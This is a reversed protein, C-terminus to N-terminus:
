KLYLRKISDIIIAFLVLLGRIVETIFPSIAMINLASRISSLLLVGAFVGPLSGSGGKLSVGGIVVAALVEMLMGSAMTPNAGNAKATILWGTLAALAGSLLFVRSIISKVNVGFSYAADINGGIIFLHAGFQTNELIFYFIIYIVIMIVPILSINFIKITQVLRFSDPLMSVGAGRTLTIALGKVVIYISLTALFSSIKLKLILYSNVFGVIMGVLLCLALALYPNMDFGSSSLSSGTLWASFIASYGAVSEFSLDMNGSILCYSEGVALIGIFASNSLINVYNRINFFGDITVSFIVTCSIM